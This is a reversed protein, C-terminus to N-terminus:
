HWYSAPFRTLSLGLLLAALVIQAKHTKGVGTCHEAVDFLLCTLVLLCTFLDVLVHMYAISCSVLLCSRSIQSTLVHTLSHKSALQLM